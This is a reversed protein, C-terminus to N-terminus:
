PAPATAKEPVKLDKLVLEAGPCMQLIQNWGGVVHVDCEPITSAEPFDWILM